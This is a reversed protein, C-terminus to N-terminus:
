SNNDTEKDIPAIGDIYVLDDFETDTFYEIDTYNYIVIMIFLCVLCIILKHKYLKKLCLKLSVM